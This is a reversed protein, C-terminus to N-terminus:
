AAVKALGLLVPVSRLRRVSVGRYICLAGAVFEFIDVGWGDLWEWDIGLLEVAAYVAAFAALLAYMPWVAPPTRDGARRHPLLARWSRAGTADGTM